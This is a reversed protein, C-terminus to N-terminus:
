ESIIPVTPLIPSPQSTQSKERCPVKSESPQFEESWSTILDCTKFPKNELLDKVAFYRANLSDPLEEALTKTAGIPQFYPLFGINKGRPKVIVGQIEGKFIFVKEKFRVGLLCRFIAKRNEYKILDNLKWKVNVGIDAGEVDLSTDDVIVQNFQSAKYTIVTIPDSDPEELDKSESTVNGKLYREFEELKLENSTNVKFERARGMGILEAPVRRGDICIAWSNYSLSLFIVLIVGRYGVISM